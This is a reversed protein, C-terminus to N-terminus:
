YILQKEIKLIVLLPLQCGTTGIIEILSVWERNGAQNRFAQKQYKSFIVKSSGVIDIIYNNKNM